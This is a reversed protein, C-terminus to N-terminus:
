CHLFKRQYLLHFLSTSPCEKKKQLKELRATLHAVRCKKQHIAFRIKRPSLRNNVKNELKEVLTKIQKNTSNIRAKTEVKNRKNLEQASSILGQVESALSNFQRATLGYEAIYQKKLENISQKTLIAKLLKSRLQGTYRASAGLFEEHEATIKTQTTFQM